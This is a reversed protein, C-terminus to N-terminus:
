TKYPNIPPRIFSYITHCHTRVIENKISDMFYREYCVNQKCHRGLAGHPRRKRALQLGQGRPATIVDEIQTTVKKKEDRM